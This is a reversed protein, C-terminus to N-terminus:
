KKQVKFTSKERDWTRATIGADRLAFKQVKNTPTYPLADVFEVYRPVFYHPANQNIFECLAEPRLEEGVKLVVNVKLEDESALQESPIGFAAAEKVQPHRLVVSEVELTSINRGAFRVADKKRDVFFFAGTEPDKRALDGTLFWEGRYAAATAQPDGFYGNFLIHPALPRVCIEGPQGDPVEVGEDDFLRVDADPPPYGLAYVPIKIAPDCHEQNLTLLCESQGMGSRLLKVNFRREFAQWKDPPIPALCAERLPNDADDDREPTNMLFISMAGVAFTQTANFHKIREMFRGASFRPELVCGIGTILARLVCTLWAGSNYLPLVCYILDGPRSHYMMGAGLLTSRIWNNHAQMVGKSRGTTGSTWLIACTDGYHHQSYDATFPSHALVSQYDIAEPLGAESGGLAIVPLPPLQELVEGLRQAHERDTVLLKPESRQITQLLWEGKYDTCIPVWIAGLKNLALCMLVMEPLNGMFFCVRDGNGVDLAQFGSALRNSCDEAEAFTIRQDDTILFDTDGNHQAQLELIRGLHRDAIDNLELPYM